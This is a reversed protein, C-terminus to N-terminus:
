EVRGFHRDWDLEPAGTLDVHERILEKGQAIIILLSHMRGGEVKYPMMYLEVGEHRYPIRVMHPTIQIEQREVNEITGVRESMSRPGEESRGWELRWQGDMSEEPPYIEIFIFSETAPDLDPALETDPIPAPEPIVFGRCVPLRAIRNESDMKMVLLVDNVRAEVKHRIGNGLFERRISRTAEPHAGEEGAGAPTAAVLVIVLMAIVNNV